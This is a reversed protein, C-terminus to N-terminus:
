IARLVGIEKERAGVPKKGQAMKQRIADKERL